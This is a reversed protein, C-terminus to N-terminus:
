NLDEDKNLEEIIDKILYKLDMPSLYMNNHITKHYKKELGELLKTFVNMTLKKTEM